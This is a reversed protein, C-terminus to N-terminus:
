NVIKFKFVFVVVVATAGFILVMIINDIGLSQTHTYPFSRLFLEVAWGVAMVLRLTYWDRRVANRSRAVGAAAPCREFSM